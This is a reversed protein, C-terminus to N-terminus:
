EGGGAWDDGLLLGVDGGLATAADGGDVHLDAIPHLGAL